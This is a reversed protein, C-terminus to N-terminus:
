MQGLVDLWRGGSLGGARSRANGAKPCRMDCGAARWALSSKLSSKIGFLCARQAQPRGRKQKNSAEQEHNAMM